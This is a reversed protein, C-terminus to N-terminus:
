WAASGDDIRDERNHEPDDLIAECTAFGDIERPQMMLPQGVRDGNLTIARWGFRYQIREGRHSM